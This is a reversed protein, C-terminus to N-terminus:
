CHRLLSESRGEADRERCDITPLVSLRLGLLVADVPNLGEEMSVGSFHFYREVQWYHRHAQIEFPIRVRHFENHIGVPELVAMEEILRKAQLEGADDGQADLSNFEQQLGEETSKRTYIACRVVRNEAPVIPANATSRPASNRAM